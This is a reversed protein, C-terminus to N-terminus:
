RVRSATPLLSKDFLRFDVRPELFDAVFFQCRLPSSRLGRLHPDASRQQRPVDGSSESRDAFVSPRKRPDVTRPRTSAFSECPLTKSALFRALIRRSNNKTVVSRPLARTELPSLGTSALARCRRDLAALRAVPQIYWVLTRGRHSIRAPSAYAQDISANSTEVFASPITTIPVSRYCQLGSLRSSPM